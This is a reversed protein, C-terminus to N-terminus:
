NTWKGQNAIATVILHDLVLQWSESHPTIRSDHMNPIVLVADGHKAAHGTEKGVVGVVKSGIKKAYDIAKVLNTSTTPGGGGVSFVFLCDNKGFRYMEMQRVFISQWGEDNALATLLSANDTLNFSAIDAIKNFDNTAHTGTGSGGGVGAFFIRGNQQKVQSITEILKEILDLKTYILEQAIQSMEILYRKAYDRYQTAPLNNKNNKKNM